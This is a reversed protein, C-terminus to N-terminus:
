ELKIEQITVTSTGSVANILVAVYANTDGVASLDSIEITKSGSFPESAVDALRTFGNEIKDVVALVCGSSAGGTFSLTMTLKKKGKFNRITDNFVTGRYGSTQSLVMAGGSFSVTPAKRSGSTSSYHTTPTWTGKYGNVDYLDNDSIWYVWEGNQCSVAEVDTWMGDVYQWAKITAIMMSNNKLANFTDGKVSYQIWADGDSRPRGSPKDPSMTWNPMPVSTIIAIDNNAGPATPKSAVAYVDFNLNSKTFKFSM